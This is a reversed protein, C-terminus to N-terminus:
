EVEIMIENRRMFWPMIPPDYRAWVPQGVIKLGKERIFAMLLDEHEKYNESSWTGSYSIVAMKKAPIRRITVKKNRPQPITEMTYHLPMVFSIRYTGDSDTEQTVPATMEIEEGSKEQTVPVTMQIEQQSINEGSIFDFLARFADSGAEEFDSTVITEAVLYPEYKRIEIDDAKEVVEYKPEELAMSISIAALIAIYIKKM